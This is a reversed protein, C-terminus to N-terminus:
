FGISLRALVQAQSLGSGGMTEIKDRIANKTPADLNGNWSTADYAVDSVVVGSSEHEHM